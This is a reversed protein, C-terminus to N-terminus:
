EGNPLLFLFFFDFFDFVAVFLFVNEVSFDELWLTGRADTRLSERGGVIVIGAPYSRSRCMQSFLGNEEERVWLFGFKKKPRVCGYLPPRGDACRSLVFQEGKQLLCFPSKM